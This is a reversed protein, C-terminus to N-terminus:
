WRWQRQRFRGRRQDLIGMQEGALAGACEEDIRYSGQWRQGGDPDGPANTVRLSSSFGNSGRRIEDFRNELNAAQVDAASFSIQYLASLGDPSIREFDGPLNADPETDLFAILQAARPDAQAKDLQRAVAL